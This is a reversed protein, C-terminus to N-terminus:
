NCLRLVSPTSMERGVLARAYLYNNRANDSLADMDVQGAANCPFAYARGPVFLDYFRLEYVRSPQPNSSNM